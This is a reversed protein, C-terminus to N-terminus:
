SFVLPLQKNLWKRVDAANYNQDIASQIKLM